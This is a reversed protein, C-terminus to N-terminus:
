VNDIPYGSMEDLLYLITETSCVYTKAGLAFAPRTIHFSDQRGTGGAVQLVPAYYFVQTINATTM